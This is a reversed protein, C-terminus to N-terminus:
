LLVENRKVVHPDVSNRFEVCPPRLFERLVAALFEIHSFATDSELLWFIDGEFQDFFQGLFDGDLM